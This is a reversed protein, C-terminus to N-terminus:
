GSVARDALETGAGDYIQLVEDAGLEKLELADDDWRAVAAVRGTFGNQNLQDLAVRNTGHFPMALVAVRVTAANVVREWFEGDAADAEVVHIGQEALRAVRIPSSEIGVVVLGHCEQLQRYAATGVRGMGIVVANADGLDVYRDEVHLHEAALPPLGRTLWPVLHGSRRNLVSSFVYSGAVAVSAAVLWASPVLASEVGIALVILAFESHNTLSVGALVATRRRFRGWRLLLMYLYGQAPLVLLLLLGLGVTEASLDGTLGISVFFGVLLLDKVSLLSRSLESAAPHGALLMGVVLAGLDGKVDLASFLAYGPVLAIFIGFLAQMEGHGLRGWLARVPRAAPLLLVLLLAWPSPPQDSTFGIFIVAAIDQLILIGIALRGYLSQSESREELTKVVLVTSSFSMAFALLAITELNEDGLLGWGLAGLTWVFGLVLGVSATLHIGATLWTERRLLIRVDVKLGISFLLLTVGLDALVDLEPLTEVGAVNLVFGAVLFGILPPLRLLRAAAGGLFVATLYVAALEMTSM